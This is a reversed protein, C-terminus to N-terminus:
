HTRCWKERLVRIKIKEFTKQLAIIFQKHKEETIIGLQLAMIYVAFGAIRDNSKLKYFLKTNTGINPSGQDGWHFISFLRM